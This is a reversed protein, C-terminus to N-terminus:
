SNAVTQNQFERVLFIWQAAEALTIKEKPRFRNEKQEGLLQLAYLKQIDQFAWGSIEGTDLFPLRTIRDNSIMKSIITAAYERTITDHPAFGGNKEDMFDTEFAQKVSSFFPDEESVDPFGPYSRKVDFSSYDFLQAFSARSLASDPDLILLSEPVISRIETEAWHGHLQESVSLFDSNPQTTVVYGGCNDSSFDIVHDFTEESNTTYFIIYDTGDESSFSLQKEKQLLSLYEELVLNNKTMYEAHPKGVYRFHWPEYIIKTTNQKNDPYRLLYGYQYAHKALWVGERTQGFSETLAGNNSIDIALGSQHESSGPPATIRSAIEEAKKQSNGKAYQRKTENQYLTTQYDYSRYGSIASIM